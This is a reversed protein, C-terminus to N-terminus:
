GCRAAAVTCFNVSLSFEAFKVRGVTNVCVYYYCPSLVFYEGMLQVICFADLSKLALEYGLTISKYPLNWQQGFSVEKGSFANPYMVLIIFLEDM